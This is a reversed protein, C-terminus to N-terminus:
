RVAPSITTNATTSAERLEAVWERDGDGYMLRGMSMSMGMSSHMRRHMRRHM